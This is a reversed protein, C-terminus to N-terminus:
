EIEEVDPDNMDGGIVQYRKGGKEIIQGVSYAGM